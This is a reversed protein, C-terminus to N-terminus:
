LAFHLYTRIEWENGQPLPVGGPALGTPPAYRPSHSDLSRWTGRVGIRTQPVDAFWRPTGLTHAIDGTLQVPFTLNFDRHYDYPGWDNFKASALVFLKRWSVRAESGYREIRRADTGNAQGTGWFYNAVVRLRPSVRSVLRGKLEWLDAAPPAGKFAFVSHGDGLVGLAGDRTTPQHRYVFGLSAALQADEQVDNDWAWMWTAPTPDWTLMLEAGTTERNGLVAFPDAVVNRVEGPFPPEAPIPGVMPKQYLFQPAVQLHGVNVAFGGLVNSQNGLGSDKLSWGTYTTTATPGGNAVLGMIAGQGYWLVRGWTGSLRGKVGFADERRVFDRLVQPGDPGPGLIQFDRGVKDNGSWIGGLEIQVGRWRSALHLTTTRTPPVPIAGSSTVNTQSTLDRQFIGTATVNGLQRQAKLLLAPNAGWWLQPGFALKLGSWARRGSIEVGVPAEGNYIDINGGYFAERYLGFFDGEYGWHTHGTRYFGQLDFDPETWNMSAQYVKVRERDRLTVAQDPPVSVELPRGRNEYFIEDIPNTPVNGLINVSLRGQVNPAPLMEFETWFSELRDFGRFAPFTTPTGEAVVPTSVFEGGTSVTELHSRLGSVRVRGLTETALLARDGRAELEAARPAIDAFHSRIVEPTTTPAYPELRFARRLAYFAARPHLTYLGQDDPRGKACIGWWEENMNNQGEVFDDYGGNPWSANTDHVDLREEQRYKWWGDSWQFIFGGIANGARGKGASQEYIERWQGLLYRAQMAQDERMTRENWADAGFETFMVPRDLKEHVVDFLDRASIGRYVNTGFVDVSPCEQALIDIYQVDGNAIAVPRTPDAEKLARTMEEFMAYLHRARATDREGKPLAEIEFSTWSLGYNNENGLLWMLLGPVGRFEEALAALEARVARRLRPDSYDVSPTWVGELTYGYRAMPHNIVTYIGYTEYVYRVWRAPMGAYVRIANVGMDRLLPMENDLAARIVDDPQRWLDFRYNSGIPIYDWNMGRVLMPRGDVVLTLGGDDRAVRVEAPAEAGAAAPFALALLLLVPALRPARRPLRAVPNM